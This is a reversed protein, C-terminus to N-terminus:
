IISITSFLIEAKCTVIEEAIHFKYLKELVLAFITWFIIAVGQFLLNADNVLKFFFMKRVKRTFLM